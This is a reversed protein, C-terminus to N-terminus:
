HNFSCGGPVMTASYVYRYKRGAYLPNFMGFELGRRADLPEERCTGDKLNFRWRHLRTGIAAGDLIAFMAAVNDPYFDPAPPVPEDQFYGDLIVEDGEEYANLWHEVFTPAAEFWRVEGDRGDRPVLAFRSPMDWRMTAQGPGELVLPFDNLIAWRASFAMDHVIRAEPMPVPRYATLRNHKDVVGYHLHPSYAPYNFFYLEGTAENVKAHASIGDIPVWGEIGLTELTLPDLRYGEGCLYFMTLAKGAHVVIDTNSADKLM